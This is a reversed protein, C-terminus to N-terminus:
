CMWKFGDDGELTPFDCFNWIYCFNGVLILLKYEDLYLILHM